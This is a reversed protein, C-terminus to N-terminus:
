IVKKLIESTSINKMRRIVTVLKAGASEAQIKKRDKNRDGDTIAVAYPKIQLLLKAYDEDKKMNKLLVVFDVNKVLSLVKARSKQNHIPRNKGKMKKVKEDEELLIFLKDGRKKAAKLFALHGKHVIDFCGGVIVIKKNLLNFENSFDLAKKISLIKNM